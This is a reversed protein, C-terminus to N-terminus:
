DDARARKGFRDRLTKRGRSITAKMAREAGRRDKDRICEFVERHAPMGISVDIRVEKQLELTVSLITRVISAFRVLLQNHCANLVALHFDGDAAYWAELDDTSTEMRRFADEIARFDSDTARRAAFGAAAPEIIDRLELIDEYLGDGITDRSLWSLVHSDLLDWNSRPCVFTGARQRAEILGKSSLVKLAERIATRSANFRETLEADAPLKDGPLLGGSGIESGLGEVISAHIGSKGSPKLSSINM